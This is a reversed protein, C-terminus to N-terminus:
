KCASIRFQSEGGSVNPAAFAGNQFPSFEGRFYVRCYTEGKIKVMVHVDRSRSIPTKFVDRKVDWDFAANVKIVQGEDMSGGKAHQKAVYAAAAQDPIKAKTDFRSTKEAEQLAAPYTAAITKIPEYWATDTTTGLTKAADDYEKRYFDIHKAPDLLGKHDAASINDGKKMAAIQGELYKVHKPVGGKVQLEIYKKGLEKWKAAVKCADAAPPENKYFGPITLKEYHKEKCAKDLAEVGAISKAFNGVVQNKSYIEVDGPKKDLKVLLDFGERLPSLKWVYEKYADENAKDAAAKTDVIDQAKKLRARADKVLKDWASTDWKPDKSKIRKLGSEVGEIATKASDLKGSDTSWDTTDKMKKELGIVSGGTLAIDDSAPSKSSDPGAPKAPASGLAEKAKKARARADAVKKEWPAVNWKPDAKKVKAVYDACDKAQSEINEIKNKESEWGSMGTLRDLEKLVYEADSIERSAPSKSKDDARAVTPEVLLSAAPAAILLSLAVLRPALVRSM